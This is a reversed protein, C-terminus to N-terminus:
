LQRFSVDSLRTSDRLRLLRTRASGTAAAVLQAQLAVSDPLPMLGTARLGGVLAAHTAPTFGGSARAGDLTEQFGQLSDYGLAALANARQTETRLPGAAHVVWALGAGLGGTVVRDFAMALGRDTDLGLPMAVNLMPRFLGEIAVENQANQCGEIRGAQRFRDLWPATWLPHGGVDALRAEPSAANTTAHLAEADAGFTQAFGTGDRQRFLALVRGLLGSEQTFLCLGFALGFHRKQYAAQGATSFERDAAVASYAEDGSDALCVERVVQYIIHNTLPVGATPAETAPDETEVPQDSYTAEKLSLPLEAAPAPAAPGQAPPAVPAAAALTAAGAPVPILGSAGRNPPPPSTVFEETQAALAQSSAVPAKLHGVYVLRASLELGVIDEPSSWNPPDTTLPIGANTYASLVLQSCYFTDSNGPGFVVKGVWNQCVQRLEGPLADCNTREVQFLAQRVVGIHNYAKDLQTGVFDRVRLQQEQTIDPYRFAVAV